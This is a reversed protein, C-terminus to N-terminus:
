KKPSDSEDASEISPMVQMHSRGVFVGGPSIALGASTVDGEVQGTERIVAEGTAKINGKLQGAVTVNRGRVTASIRANVGITVDGAALITGEFIGDIMIDSESNLEGKVKVGSGIITEAGAAGFADDHSKRAMNM